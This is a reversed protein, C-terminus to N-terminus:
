ILRETILKKLKTSSTSQTYPFFVMTSGREELWEKKRLWVPDHEYDSGSFQVDFHHMRWADATDHHGLPIEVVEDVCRCAELVAVREEFPIFPEVKKVERVQRDSVVGVILYDCQEKARRLLNLHGVHFLDFVGAIYGVHYKKVAKTNDRPIPHRKRRYMREPEFVGYAHIGMEELQKIIPFYNRICILVHYEGISYDRLIKPPSVMIEAVTKGWCKESNDVIADIVYEQGYKEIFRQAYRGSGFLILKRTGINELADVFIRQYDEDSFNMRLRNAQVTSWNPKYKQYYTTLSDLNRLKVLFERELSLWRKKGELLGYRAYLTDAPIIAEFDPNGAYFSAIMRTLLVNVPYKEVSFEQDFFVFQGNIYFSNLPVLDLCARCFLLDSSKSDSAYKDGKYSDSSALIIDKFQDMVKLFAEKDQYLLKKLFLQGTECEMYPMSVIGNELKLEVVPIGRNKLYTTNDMLRQLRGVGEPYAAQKTVTGNDHIVTIMSNEPGRELSSTVHLMDSLTGDVTCEVFYANAMAHFVGNDILAQYISVEDLFITSPEHYMPFLRNCLDEKPLYDESYLFVPNELGPLVSSFKCKEFGVESLMVEIESQSYLRGQLEIKGRYVLSRYGEIGDFNHNTYPDRDGCFYRIGLRNHLGLLLVGGATLCERMKKLAEIPKLIQELIGDVCVIYDYKGHIDQIQTPAITQVSIPCCALMQGISDDVKGIHLVKTSPMFGYWRLLASPLENYINKKQLLKQGERGKIKM